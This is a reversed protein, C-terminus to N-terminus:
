TIIIIPRNKDSSTQLISNKPKQQFKLNTVSSHHRSPNQNRQSSKKQFNCKQM